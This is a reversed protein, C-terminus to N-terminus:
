EVSVLDCTKRFASALAKSEGPLEVMCVHYMIADAGWWTTVVWTRADGRTVTGDSEPIEDFVLTRRNSGRVDEVVKGPFTGGTFRQYMVRDVVQDWDKSECTGDCNNGVRLRVEGGFSPSPGALPQDAPVYEGSIASPKWGAPVAMRYRFSSGRRKEELVGIEFRIKDRWPEPVLANVAGAHGDPLKVAPRNDGGDRCGAAVVIAWAVARRTM